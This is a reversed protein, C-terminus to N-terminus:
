VCSLFSPWRIVRISVFPFGKREKHDRRNERSDKFWLSRLSRLPFPLEGEKEEENGFNAFRKPFAAAASVRNGSASSRAAAATAVGAVAFDFAWPFSTEAVAANGFRKALKPFSLRSLKALFYSIASYYGSLM